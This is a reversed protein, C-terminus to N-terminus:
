EARTVEAIAVTSPSGRAPRTDGAVWLIPHLLHRERETIGRPSQFILDSIPLSLRGEEVSIWVERAGISVTRQFFPCLSRDDCRIVGLFGALFASLPESNGAYIIAAAAVSVIAFNAM